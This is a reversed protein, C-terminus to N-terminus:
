THMPTCVCFVFFSFFSFIASVQPTLKGVRQTVPENLVVEIKCSDRENLTQFRLENETVYVAQGREVCIGKNVLVLKAVILPGLNGLFIATLLLLSSTERMNTETSAKLDLFLCYSSQKQELSPVGVKVVLRQSLNQRLIINSKLLEEVVSTIVSCNM